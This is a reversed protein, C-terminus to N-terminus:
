ANSESFALALEVFEDIASTRAATRWIPVVVMPPLDHIPVVALDPLSLRDLVTAVTIHLGRGWMVLTIFDEISLETSGAMAPVDEDLRNLARGSPTVKPTWRDLLEPRWINCPNLLDYGVLDEISISEHRTLPHGAPVLVGRQTRRLVPGVTRGPADLPSGDGGPSWVLAMGTDERFEFGYPVVGFNGMASLRVVRGPHTQEFERVLRTVYPGISPMYGISLVVQVDRAAQQCERVTLNLQDYGRQAGERFQAGLSTLRVTRSTREFLAGGIERELARITQSVRGQTVHLRAATRGFHLEEALVLFTGVERLEV